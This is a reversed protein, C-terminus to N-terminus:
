VIQKRTAKIMRDKGSIDQQLQINVFSTEMVKKTASGLDENIEFYILGVPSLLEESLEVIKRYFLLADNDEVFLALHPEYKLVNDKMLEKESLRVYPPNSVIIDFKGYKTIFSEADVTLINAEVFDIKATNKKANYAALKLADKSIDLGYVKAKPLNKALTIPICGSGTGIDLIKIDKDKCDRIIWDVLEETEPRPILVSQNVRFRLGYFETEGIIYQIPEYVQLREITDQFFNYADGEIVEEAKLVLDVPKYLLKFECLLRFFSQIEADVYYGLLANQFYTRLSKIQM